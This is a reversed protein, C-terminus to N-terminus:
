RDLRTVKVQRYHGVWRAVDGKGTRLTRGLRAVDGKGTWLTRGM